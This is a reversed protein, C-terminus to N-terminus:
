INVFSYNDEIILPNGPVVGRCYGNTDVKMCSLIM